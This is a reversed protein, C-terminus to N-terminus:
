GSKAEIVTELAHYRLGDTLYSAWGSEPSIKAIQESEISESGDMGYAAKLGDLIAATETVSYDRISLAEYAHCFADQFETSGEMNQETHQKLERVLSVVQATTMPNPPTEITIASQEPPRDEDPHSEPVRQYGNAGTIIHGTLRGIVAEYLASEALAYTVDGWDQPHRVKDDETLAVPNHGIISDLTGVIYVREFNTLTTRVITTEITDWVARMVGDTETQTEENIEGIREAAVITLYEVLAIVDVPCDDDETVHYPDEDASHYQYPPSFALTSDTM